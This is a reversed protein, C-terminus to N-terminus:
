FRPSFPIVNEGLDEEEPEWPQFVHDGYRGAEVQEGIWADISFNKPGHTAFVERVHNIDYDGLEFGEIVDVLMNIRPTEPHHGGSPDEPQGIELQFLARSLQDSTDSM